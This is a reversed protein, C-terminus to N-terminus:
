GNSGGVDRRYGLTRAPSATRWATKEADLTSTERTYLVDMGLSTRLSRLMQKFFPRMHSMHLHDVNTELALLTAAVTGGGGKIAAGLARVGDRVRRSAADTGLSDACKRLGEVLGHVADADSEANLQITTASM